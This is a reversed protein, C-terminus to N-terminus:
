FLSLQEWDMDNKLSIYFDKLEKEDSIAANGRDIISKNGSNNLLANAYAALKKNQKIAADVTHMTGGDIRSEIVLVGQSVASQLRDRQVYTYRQPLFDSEYESILCGGADLIRNALEMNSKPTIHNLGGPLIAVCKGGAELAGILAATDCGLALGNVVVMGMDAAVRGAKRSFELGDQSCDRSGVIAVCKENSLISIDGQYYVLDPMGKLRKFSKPFIDDKNSCKQISYNM